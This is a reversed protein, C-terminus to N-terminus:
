LKSFIPKKKTMFSMVAKPIDETHHMLASWLANYELGERVSHDRSFNLVHKTGIVAVPSKSAIESAVGISKALGEERNEFVKSVLGFKLAEDAGAKRATYALDRVWSDNGVVKPLRQLTGVDAAIGIDVEKVTFFADQTCFRIDCATALDVGAGFCGSHILAIVPKDCQEIASICDQLELVKIRHYYGIRAIDAKDDSVLGESQAQKLDLGATFIRGRGALIVCRVDPDTKVITFCEKLGKWM